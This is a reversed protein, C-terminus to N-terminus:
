GSRIDQVGDAIDAAGRAALAPNGTRVGNVFQPVGDRIDQIGERISALTPRGGSIKDWNDETIEQPCAIDSPISSTM